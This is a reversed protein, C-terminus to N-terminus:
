PQKATAPPTTEASHDAARHDSRHRPLMRPLVLPIGLVIAMLGAFALWRFRRYEPLVTVRIIAFLLAAGCLMAPPLWRVRHAHGATSLVGWAPMLYIMAFAYPGALRARTVFPRSLIRTEAAVEALTAAKVRLGVERSFESVHREHERLFEDVSDGSVEVRRYREGIESGVGTPATSTALLGGGEFITNACMRMPHGAALRYIELLVRRDPSALWRSGSTVYRWHLPTFFRFREVTKGIPVFGRATLEAFRRDYESDKGRPDAERPDDRMDTDYTRLPTLFLVMPGLIWLATVGAAAWLVLLGVQSQVFGMPM